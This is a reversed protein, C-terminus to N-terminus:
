YQSSDTQFVNTFFSLFVLEPSQQLNTPNTLGATAAPLPWALGPWCYCSCLSKLWGQLSGLQSSWWLFLPTGATHAVEKDGLFTTFQLYGELFLSHTVTGLFPPKSTGPHLQIALLFPYVRGLEAALRVYSLIDSSLFLASLGRCVGPHCFACLSCVM